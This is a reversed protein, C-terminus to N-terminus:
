ATSNHSLLSFDIKVKRRDAGPRRNDDLIKDHPTPELRSNSRRNTLFNRRDRHSSFGCVCTEAPCKQLPLTPSESILYRKGAIAEAAPCGAAGYYISVAAYKGLDDGPEGATKRRDTREAM